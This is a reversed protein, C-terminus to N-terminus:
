DALGKGNLSKLFASIDAVDDPKLELGLQLRAMTQIAEELTKVSGNHFWPGTLAINRLQPVKFVQKDADDGTVAFRGPDASPFDGHGAGGLKEYMGGGLLPGDHCRVCNHKLFATLGRQEQENLASKDGKLFDDFRAETRLTREFAALAESLNAYTLPSSQGPFAKAFEAPYDQTQSLKEVVAEPSPMAMEVPNLIPQGAQDALDKARGDWFQSFQWGANLVTPSNRDGLKGEAGPSTPLNDVGARGDKVPHCSACSQANNISLRTDHYLKEGLAIREPTDNEAGPMAAPLPALYRSAKRILRDPDAALSPGALLLSLSTALIFRQARYPM